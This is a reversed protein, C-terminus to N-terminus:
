ADEKKPVDLAALNEAATKFYAPSIEIAKRYFARAHQHEGKRAAIFGADNYLRAVQSDDLEALQTGLADSLILALYYNNEYVRTQPQENRAQEFKSLAEQTRGQMLLSMGMNNLAPGAPRETEHAIQLAQLYADLALFWDMNKDHMHGIANWLRADDPSNELATKLASIVAKPEGSLSALLAQGAEVKYMEALPLKKKALQQYITKAQIQYHIDKGALALSTNAFGLLIEDRKPTRKPLHAFLNQYEDYAQLFSGKASLHKSKEYSTEIDYDSTEVM